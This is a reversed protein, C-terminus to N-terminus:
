ISFGDFEKFLGSMTRIAPKSLTISRFLREDDQYGAKILHYLIAGTYYPAYQNALIGRIDGEHSQCSFIFECAKQIPSHSRNMEYQDILFRLQRWTETLAYKHGSGSDSKKKGPSWSGDAQQKKLFKGVEPLNWISEIPDVNKDILDRKTFFIIAGNSSKLLPKIPDYKFHHLWKKM